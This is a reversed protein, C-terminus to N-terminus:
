GKGSEKHLWVVGDGHKEEFVVLVVQGRPRRRDLISKGWVDARDVGEKWLTQKFMVQESAKGSRGM